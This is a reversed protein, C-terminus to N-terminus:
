FRRIFTPCYTVLNPNAEGTETSHASILNDGHPLPPKSSTLEVGSACWRPERTASSGWSGPRGHHDPLRLGGRFACYALFRTKSGQVETPM